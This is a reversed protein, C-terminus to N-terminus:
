GAKSFLPSGLHSVVHKSSVRALARSIAYGTVITQATWCFIVGLSFSSLAGLLLGAPWAIGWGLASLALWRWWGRGAWQRLDRLTLAQAAGVVIGIIASVIALSVFLLLTNILPPAGPQALSLVAFPPQGEFIYLPIVSLASLLSVLTWRWGRGAQRAHTTLLAIVLALGQGLAICIIYVGFSGVVALTLIADESNLLSFVRLLGAYLPADLALGVAAGLTTGVPLLAWTLWRQIPRTAPRQSQQSM